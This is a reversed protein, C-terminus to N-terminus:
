TRHLHVFLCVSCAFLMAKHFGMFSSLLIRKRRRTARVFVCSFTAVLFAVLLIDATQWFFAVAYFLSDKRDDEMVFQASIVDKVSTWCELTDKGQNFLFEVQDVARRTLLDCAVASCQWAGMCGDTRNHVVVYTGNKFLSLDSLSADRSLPGHSAFRNDTAILFFVTLLLLSYELSILASPSCPAGQLRASRVYSERLVLDTITDGPIM